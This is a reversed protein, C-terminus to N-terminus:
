FCVARFCLLGATIFYYGDIKLDQTHQVTTCIKESRNKLDSELTRKQENQTSMSEKQNDFLCYRSLGILPM